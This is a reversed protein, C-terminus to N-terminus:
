RHDADGAGPAHRVGVRAGTLELSAGIILEQSNRTTPGPSDSDDSGCAATFLTGAAAFLVGRRSSGHPASRRNLWTDWGEGRGAIATALHWAPISGPRVM